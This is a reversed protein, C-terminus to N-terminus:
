LEEARVRGRVAVGPESWVTMVLRLRKGAERAGRIRASPVDRLSQKEVDAPTIGADMAVNALAAAKCAADWGDLDHSPDAEAYGEAQVHALAEDFSRGTGM